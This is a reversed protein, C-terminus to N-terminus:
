AALAQLEACRLTRLGGLLADIIEPAAASSRSVALGPPAGAPALKLRMALVIAPANGGLEAYFEPLRQDAHVLVVSQAERLCLFAELLGAHLSAEGAAIATHDGCAGFCLSLIGPPANHVSMSFLAPSLLERKALDALLTAASSIDGNCSSFM